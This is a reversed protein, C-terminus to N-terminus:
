DLKIYNGQGLGLPHPVTVIKNALGINIVVTLIIM